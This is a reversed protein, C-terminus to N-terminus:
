KGGSFVFPKVNVNLPKDVAISVADSDLVVMAGSTYDFFFDPCDGGKYYVGDLAMATTLLQATGYAQGWDTHVSKIEEPPTMFTCVSQPYSSSIYMGLIEGSMPAREYVYWIKGKEDVRKMYEAINKRAQFNSSRPVPVSSTARAKVNMQAQVNRKEALEAASPQKAQCGTTLLVMTMATVLNIKKM